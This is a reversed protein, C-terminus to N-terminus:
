APLLLEANVNVHGPDLHGQHGPWCRPAGLHGLEIIRHGRGHGPHATDELNGCNPAALGDRHDGIAIPGGLLGAIRQLNVPIEGTDFADAGVLLFNVALAQFVLFVLAAAVSLQM